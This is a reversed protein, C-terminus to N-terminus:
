FSIKYSEGKSMIIGKIGLKDLKLRLKYIHTEITSTEINNKQKWVKQLLKNRSVSNPKNYLLYEFIEDIM